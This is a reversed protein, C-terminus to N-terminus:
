RNQAVLPRHMMMALRLEEGTSSADSMTTPAVHFVYSRPGYRVYMANDALVAADGLGNILTGTRLATAPFLADHRAIVFLSRPESTTAVYQCVTGTTPMLRMQTGLVESIQQESLVSCPVGAVVKTPDHRPGFIFVSFLVVLLITAAVARQLEFGPPREFNALPHSLSM